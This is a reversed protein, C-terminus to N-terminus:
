DQNLRLVQGLSPRLARWVMATLATMFIALLTLLVIGLSSPFVLQPPIVQQITYFEANSLNSLAGGAPINTFILAPVAILSLVAGFVGGLMLALVHVIGQEWTILSATQGPTAGQARLAAFNTLRTRMSLWSALLDALLALLL